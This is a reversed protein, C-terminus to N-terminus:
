CNQYKWHRSKGEAMRELAQELRRQRTEDTKAETLWDVYERKHSPSFAEFTAAAKKNKKLAATLDDPIVLEGKVKKPRDVKVGEDNLMMAIRICATLAKKPPLDKVSEFRAREALAAGDKGATKVVLEQKWFGFTAHAKFAAMSCLMGKYLFHPFSWKM